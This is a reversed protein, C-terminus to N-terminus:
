DSLTEILVSRSVNTHRDDKFKGRQSSLASGREGKRECIRKSRKEWRRGHGVHWACQRIHWRCLSHIDQHRQRHNAFLHELANVNVRGRRAGLFVQLDTRTFTKSHLDLAVMRINRTNRLHSHNCICVNFQFNSTNTRLSITRSSGRPTLEITFINWMLSLSHAPAHLQSPTSTNLLFTM